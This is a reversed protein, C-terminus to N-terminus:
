KAKVNRTTGTGAPIPEDVFKAVGFGGYESVYSAGGGVLLPYIYLVPGDLRLNNAIYRVGSGPTLATIGREHGIWFNGDVAVVTHLLAGNVDSYTYASSSPTQPQDGASTITVSRRDDSIRAQAGSVIASVSPPPPATPFRRTTLEARSNILYMWLGERSGALIHRGDSVALSLRSPERQVQQFAAEQDAKEGLALVGRGFSGAIALHQAEIQGVDFAGLTNIYIPDSLARPGLAFGHVAEDTVVWLREGVVRVSRFQGPVSVTANAADLERVDPGMLGVLTAQEGQRAFVITGTADAHPTDGLESLNWVETASGVYRGDDLRFARRGSCAILGFESRAIRSVDDNSTFIKRRDSVRVVGGRGSVYLEGDVHSLRRPRIGLEAASIRAVIQPAQPPQLSLQLLEDDEIVVYLFRGDDRQHMLLDIAPGTEGTKGLSITRIPEASQGTLVLLEHGFTQFWLDDHILTRYHTGGEHHVIRLVSITPPKPPPKPSSKCGSLWCLLFMFFVVHRIM